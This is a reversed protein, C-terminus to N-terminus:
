RALGEEAQRSEDVGAARSDAPGSLDTLYKVYRKQNEIESLYWGPINRSGKPELVHSVEFEKLGIKRLEAALLVFDRQHKFCLKQAQEMRALKEQAQKLQDAPASATDTEAPVDTQDEQAQSRRRNM